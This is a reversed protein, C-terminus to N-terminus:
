KRVIIKKNIPIENVYIRILYFGNPLGSIDLKEIVNDKTLVCVGAQNFIEVKEIPQGSQIFLYDRIPNPHLQLSGASLTSIADDDGLCETLQLQLAAIIANAAALQEELEAIRAALESKFTVSISHNGTVNQFTYSGTSVATADNLGDILVKDTAYGENPSFTFTLNAGENVTQNTAPSIAGNAGAFVSITYQQVPLQYKLIPLGKNDSSLESM